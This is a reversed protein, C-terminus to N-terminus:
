IHHESGYCDQKGDIEQYFACYVEGVLALYGWGEKPKEQLEYLKNLAISRAKQFTGRHLLHTDFSACGNFLGGNGGV